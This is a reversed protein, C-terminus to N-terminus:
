RGDTRLVSERAPDKGAAAARGGARGPRSDTVRAGDRVDGDLAVRPNALAVGTTSFRAAVLDYPQLDVTWQRQGGPGSPAPLSRSPDLNEFRAAAPAAVDVTVRCKWASDNVLYALTAEPRSLTRITVPQTKGPVTLFAAAPLQRYIAVLDHVSEEQGLPLLWGGDFMSQADLTALAHVFRRRNARGAPSPQAVLLTFTGKYPSKADFSTLRTQQPEHFFLSGASTSGRLPEDLEASNNLEMNLSQALLSDLPAMRSPRLFVIDGQGTYLRPDIGLAHLTADLSTTRPLAPRLLQALDPRDLADAAALYLKTPSGRAASAEGRVREHFASLERARWDIWQARHDDVVLKALSERDQRADPSYRLRGDKAFRALTEEDCGWEAGPLQAYGDATMQLAIGAFSPHHAYRDALERIVALM